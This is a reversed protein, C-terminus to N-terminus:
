SSPDPDKRCSLLNGKFSLHFAYSTMMLGATVYPLSHQAIFVLLLVSILINWPIKQTDLYSCKRFSSILRSSFRGGISSTIRLPRRRHDPCTCLRSSLVLGVGQLYPYLALLTVLHVNMSIYMFEFVCVCMHIAFRIIFNMVYTYIYIYIDHIEDNNKSSTAADHNSCPRTPGERHIEYHTWLQMCKYM